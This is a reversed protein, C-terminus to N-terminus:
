IIVGILATVVAIFISIWIGTNTKNKDNLNNRVFEEMTSNRNELSKISKSHETMQQELMEVRASLKMEEINNLKAKIYSMDELLRLLMEVIKENDM